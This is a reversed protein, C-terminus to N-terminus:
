YTTKGSFISGFRGAVCMVFTFTPVTGTPPIELTISIKQNPPLVPPAELPIKSPGVLRNTATASDFVTLGTAKGTFAPLLEYACYDKVVVSNAISINILGLQAGEANPFQVETAMNFPVVSLIANADATLDATTAVVLFFALEEIVLAEGAKLTGSQFNSFNRSKGISNSFFTLTQRAANTVLAVTDVINVTSGQMEKIGTLGLKNAVYILKQAQTPTQGVTKPATRRPSTVVAM